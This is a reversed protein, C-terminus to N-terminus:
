SKYEDLANSQHRMQCLPVSTYTLSMIRRRRRDTLPEVISFEIEKARALIPVKKGAQRSLERFIEEVTPYYDLSKANPKSVQM